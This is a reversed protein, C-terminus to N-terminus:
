GFSVHSHQHNSGQHEYEHGNGRSRQHQAPQTQQKKMRRILGRYTKSMFKSQDDEPDTVQNNESNMSQLRNQNQSVHRLGEDMASSELMNMSPGSFNSNVQM